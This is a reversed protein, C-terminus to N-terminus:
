SLQFVSRRVTEVAELRMRRHHERYAAIVAPDDCLDVTLVSRRM